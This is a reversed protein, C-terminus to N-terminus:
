LDDEATCSPAGQSSADCAAIRHEFAVEARLGDLDRHVFAKALEQGGRRYTVTCDRKELSGTVEAEDWREAHGVYRLSFDYQGTWFFPIHDFREGHGLMNHAAVQGMREATSRCGGQGTPSFPLRAHGDPPCGWRGLHNDAGALTTTPVPWPPQRCRGLHNDAGAL